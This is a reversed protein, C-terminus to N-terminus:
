HDALVTIQKGEIKFQVGILEMIHLVESVNASRPIKGVIEDDRVPGEYVIDVDYWRSIQRMVRRIDTRNFYYYGEKWAIAEQTNVERSYLQGSKNDFEGQQGPKLLTEHSDHSMKVAGELLTTQVVGEDAYAMINFHTGLVDVLSGGANVKFPRTKDTAVEFYAEGNLEVQRVPGNFVAPFKLSSAANLWVKTGDSLVIQYQGGRPTAITNYVLAGSGRRDDAQYALRGSDLKIVKTNGQQSLVGNQANTLIIQNGGSLTLIAKNSGPVIGMSPPAEVAISSPASPHTSFLRYGGTLVALLLVAAASWKWLGTRLLLIRGPPKADPKESPALDERGATKDVSLIAQLLPHLDRQLLSHPDGQGAAPTAAEQQLLAAIAAQVVPENGPDQLIDSLAQWEKETIVGTIYQNLLYRIQQEQM